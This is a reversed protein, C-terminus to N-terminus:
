KESADNIEKQASKMQKTHEAIIHKIAVHKEAELAMARNQVIVRQAANEREVTADYVQHPPVNASPQQGGADALQGVAEGIGAANATAERLSQTLLTNQDMILKNQDLVQQTQGAASVAQLQGASLQKQQLVLQATLEANQTVARDREAQLEAILAGNAEGLASAEPRGGAAAAPRKFPNNPQTTSESM